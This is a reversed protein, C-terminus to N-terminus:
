GTAPELWGQEKLRGWAIKLDHERLAKRKRPTWQHVLKVAEDASVCANQDEHVAVWHISALLELGYPTEFGEILRIVREIRARTETHDELYASAARAADPALSVPNLRSGEGFNDIYHGEMDRLGHKMNEDYPGYSGKAFQVTLPEGAEALFYLLKQAELHSAEFALVSYAEILGILSARWHNIGPRPTRIMREQPAAHDPAYLRLEVDSLAAFAQEILPRVENWRLGGLGCGLPPMAISGIKERRVVTVLDQLGSQIYEFRSQERWHSKTPFNIILSPRLKGTRTVFMTGIRVEGQKCASQYARYNEPFAQKFQLAVGKGMVGITNVTNIVADVDETILNGKGEIIM